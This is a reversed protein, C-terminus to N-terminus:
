TYNEPNNNAVIRIEQTKICDECIVVMEGVRPLNGNDQYDLDADYFTKCGCSDCLYYDSMAM